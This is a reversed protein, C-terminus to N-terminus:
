MVHRLHYIGGQDIIEIFHVYRLGDHLFRGHYAVRYKVVYQLFDWHEELQTEEFVIVGCHGYVHVVVQVELHKEFTILM